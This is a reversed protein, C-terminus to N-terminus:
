IFGEPEQYASRPPNPVKVVAQVEGMPLRFVEADGVFFVWEDGKREYFDAEVEQSGGTMRMVEYINM